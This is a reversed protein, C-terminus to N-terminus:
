YNGLLANAQVDLLDSNSISHRRGLPLTLSLRSEDNSLSVGFSELLGSSRVMTFLNM